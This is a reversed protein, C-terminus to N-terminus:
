QEGNYLDYVSKARNKVMEKLSEPELVKIRDGFQVIWSVLGENVFAEDRISFCDENLVRVNANSGFRDFMEELLEKRCQLEIMEETGSYMNFSKQVYDAADFGTVYSSVESLPRAKEDLVEVDRIRDIRLNMLNDYNEKNAVLYYHDRSWILSYPSVIFEKTERAASFKETAVRREYRFRVKKATKIARDLADITYYIEENECKPRSDIYIQEKIAAAQYVSVFKEIKELLKKTKSRSIFNAAQVADCLLRVEALEFDRSGIFCGNKPTHTKIIDLGYSSLVEIDNYLSKRETCIGYRNDLKEIIEASNMIHNEDSYQELIDKIYLLKQKSNQQGAM